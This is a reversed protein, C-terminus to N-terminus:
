YKREYVLRGGLITFRTFGTLDMGDFIANKSKSFFLSSDVRWKTKPDIITIDANSQPTLSGGSLGLIKNPMISMKNVLEKPSLIQKETLFTIVAGVMTEMGIVGFPADRFDVNKDQISHPAHDSAIVDITGDSLGEIIANRDKESKLPPNMKKNTNSSTSDDEIFVFYHPCTECSVHIGRGKAWRILAVSGETSVHCIHLRAGTFEALLIDRAVMVDESVAPICQIKMKSSGPGKNLHGYKVLDQDECHALIPVDLEKSIKLANLMIDSRYVSKGDDSFAKVGSNQLTAFPTIEKGQLNKTISGVPYLRCPCTKGRDLIYQIISDNDLVPNTNPMCAISTFGGAAAANSGTEITEKYEYGPERLHVHMDM